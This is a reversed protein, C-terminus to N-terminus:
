GDGRLRRPTRVSPTSGEHGFGGTESVPAYGPEAVDAGPLRLRSGRRAARRERPRGPLRGSPRAAELRAKRRTELVIVKAPRPAATRAVVRVLHLHM